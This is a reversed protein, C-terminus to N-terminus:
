TDGGGLVRRLTADISRLLRRHLEAALARNGSVLSEILQEDSSTSADQRVATGPTGTEFLVLEMSTRAHKTARTRSAPANRTWETSSNGANTITDRTTATVLEM